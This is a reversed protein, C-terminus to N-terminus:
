MSVNQKKENKESRLMSRSKEVECLAELVFTWKERPTLMKKQYVYM